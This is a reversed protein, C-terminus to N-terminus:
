IIKSVWLHRLKVWDEFTDDWKSVYIIDTAEKRKCKKYSSLYEAEKTQPVQCIREAVMLPNTIDCREIMIKYPEPMNNRVIQKTIESVESTYTKIRTNM